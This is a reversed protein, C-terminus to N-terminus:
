AVAAVIPVENEAGRKTSGPREGGHYADDPQLTGDLPQEPDRPAM